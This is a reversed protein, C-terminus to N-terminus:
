LLLLVINSFIQIWCVNRAGYAFGNLACLLSINQVVSKFDTSKIKNHHGQKKMIYGQCIKKMGQFLAFAACSFNVFALIIRTIIFVNVDIKM